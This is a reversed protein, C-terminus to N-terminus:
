IRTRVSTWCRCNVHAPPNDIGMEFDQDIPVETGDLPACIDCVLDDVNTFWQKVVPVDKWQKKLAEGALQNGKAFARTIETIAIRLARMEGFTPELMDMVDRISIGATSLFTSVATRVADATTADLGMLWRTFYNRIYEIAFRRPEDYDVDLNTQEDFLDIGKLVAELFMMYLAANDEEDYIEIGWDKAPYREELIRKVKRRAHSLRKLIVTKLREEMENKIKLGPERKDRGKTEAIWRARGSLLPIIDPYCKAVIRVIDDKIM